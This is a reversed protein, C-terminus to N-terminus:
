TSHGWNSFDALADNQDTAAVAIINDLDFSAPYMKHVGDIDFTDNGAATVFLVDRARAYDIADRVIALDSENWTAGASGSEVGISANIIRAGNDVAYHIGDSVSLSSIGGFGAGVPISMLRAGSAIGAVGKANNKAAAIIGAVLTGHGMSDPWAYKHNGTLSLQSYLWGGPGHHHAYSPIPGLQAPCDIGSTVSFWFDDVCGNADDDVGTVGNFEISNVWFGTDCGFVDDICGNNDDDVQDQGNAEAANVWMHGVFEEHTYDIGTDTVAVIVGNGGDQQTWAEIGDVDSDFSGGTQGVNNLAWQQSFMPDNPVGAQLLSWLVNASAIEINPDRKLADVVARPDQGKKLRIVKWRAASDETRALEKDEYARGAFKKGGKTQRSERLEAAGFRAFGKRFEAERGPKVKVLVESTSYSASQGQAQSSKAVPVTGVAGSKGNAGVPAGAVEQAGAAWISLVCIAVLRRFVYSM